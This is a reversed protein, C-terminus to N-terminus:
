QTALSFAPLWGAHRDITLAVFDEERRCVRQQSQYKRCRELGNESVQQCCNLLRRSRHLQGPCMEVPGEEVEQGDGPLLM